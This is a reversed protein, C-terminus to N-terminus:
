ECRAVALNPKEITQGEDMTVLDIDVVYLGNVSNSADCDTGIPVTGFDFTRFLQADASSVQLVFYARDDSVYLGTSTKGARNSVVSEATATYATAIFEYDGAPLGKVTYTTISPDSIDAIMQYIRTGAQNTLPGAPTCSETETPTVWSLDADDAMVPYAVMLALILITDHAKSM